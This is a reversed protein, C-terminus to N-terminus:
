HCIPVRYLRTSSCRCLYVEAKQAVMVHYICKKRNGKEPDGNAVGVPIFILSVRRPVYVDLSRCSHGDSTNFKMKTHRVTTRNCPVHSDYKSVMETM